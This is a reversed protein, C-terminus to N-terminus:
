VNTIDGKPSTAEHSPDNTSVPQYGNGAARGLLPNRVGISAFQVQNKDDDEEGEEGGTGTGTGTGASGRLTRGKSGSGSSTGTNGSSSTFSSTSGSGSRHFIATYLSKCRDKM